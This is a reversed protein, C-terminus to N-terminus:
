YTMGLCPLISQAYIANLKRSDGSTNYLSSDTGATSNTGDVTNNTFTFQVIWDKPLTYHDKYQMFCNQSLATREGVTSSYIAGGFLSAANDLFM